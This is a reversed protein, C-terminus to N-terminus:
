AQDLAISLALVALGYCLQRHRPLPGVRAAIDSHALTRAEALTKGTALDVIAKGCAHCGPCQYTEYVASTIVDGLLTLRLSIYPGQGPPPGAHGKLVRPVPAVDLAKEM